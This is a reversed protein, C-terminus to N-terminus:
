GGNGISMARAIHPSCSLAPPTLVHSAIGLRPCVEEAVAQGRGLEAPGRAVRDAARLTSAHDSGALGQDPEGVSTSDDHEPPSQAEGVAAAGPSAPSCRSCYRM